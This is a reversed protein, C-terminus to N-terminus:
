DGSRNEKVFQRVVASPNDEVCQHYDPDAIPLPQERLDIWHLSTGRLLLCDALYNALTRTLSPQRISGLIIAINM